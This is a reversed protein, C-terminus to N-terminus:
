IVPQEPQIPSRPEPQCSFPLFLETVCAPAAGSALQAAMNPCLRHEIKEGRALRQLMEYDEGLREAPLLVSVEQGIIEEARYGYM